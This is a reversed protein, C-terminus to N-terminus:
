DYTGAQLLSKKTTHWLPVGVLISHLSSFVLPNLAGLLFLAIQNTDL